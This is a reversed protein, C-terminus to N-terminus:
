SLRMKSEAPICQCFVQPLVMTEQNFHLQQTGPFVQMSKCSVVVESDTMEQSFSSLPSIDTGAMYFVCVNLYSSPRITMAMSILMSQQLKSWWGLSLLVCSFVMCFFQLILYSVATQFSWDCFTSLHCLIQWARWECQVAGCYFYSMTKWQKLKGEVM